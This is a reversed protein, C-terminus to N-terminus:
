SPSPKVGTSIKWRPQAVSGAGADRSRLGGLGRRRGPEEPWVRSGVRRCVDRWGEETMFGAEEERGELDLLRLV